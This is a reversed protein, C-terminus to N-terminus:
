QGRLKSLCADLEAKLEAVCVGEEREWEERIRRIHPAMREKRRDYWARMRRRDEDSVYGGGYLSDHLTCEVDVPPKVPDPISEEAMKWQDLKKQCWDIRERLAQRRLLEEGNEKNTGWWKRWSDADEYSELGPRPFSEGAFAILAKSIGDDGDWYGNGDDLYDIVGEIARPKPVKLLALALRDGLVSRLRTGALAHLLPEVATEDRLEGLSDAALCRIRYARDLLKNYSREGEYYRKNELFRLARSLGQVDRQRKLRNVRPAFALRM